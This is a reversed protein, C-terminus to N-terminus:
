GSRLPARRPVDRGGRGARSRRDAGSATEAHAAARADLLTEAARMRYRLPLDEDAIRTRLTTAVFRAPLRRFMEDLTDTSSSSARCLLSARFAAELVSAMAPAGGEHDSARLDPDIATVVRALQVVEWARDGCNRGRPDRLVAWLDPLADRAAPGLKQLVEAYRGREGQATEAARLRRRLAPGLAAARPGLREIVALASARASPDDLLTELDTLHAGYLPGIMIMTGLAESRLTGQGDRVLRWIPEVAPALLREADPPPPTRAPQDFRAGGGLNGAVSLAARVEARDHSALARLAFAIAPARKKEDAASLIRVMLESPPLYCESGRKEIRTQERFLAPLVPLGRRVVEEEAETEFGLGKCIKDALAPLSARELRASAANEPDADVAGVRSVVALALVAAAGAAM